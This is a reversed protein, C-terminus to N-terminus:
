LKSFFENAKKIELFYSIYYAAAGLVYPITVSVFMDKYASPAMDTYKSGIWILAFIVGMLLVYQGIVVPIFPFRQLYYHLSLIFTALVCVLLCTFINETYFRDTFGILKEYILKGCVILTFSVCVVSIFNHRDIIKM